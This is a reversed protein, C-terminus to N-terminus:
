EGRIDRADAFAERWTDGQGEVTTADNLPGSGVAYRYRALRGPRANTKSQPGPRFRAWGSPGWRRVAEKTAEIHTM